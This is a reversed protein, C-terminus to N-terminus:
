PIVDGTEDDVSPQSDRSLWAAIMGLMSDSDIGQAAQRKLWAENIDDGHASVPVITSTAGDSGVTEFKPTGEKNKGGIPIFFETSLVKRKLKLTLLNIAKTLSQDFRKANTGNIRIIAPIKLGKALVLVDLSPRSKEQYDDFELIKKERGSGLIRYRKIGLPMVELYPATFADVLEGSKATLQEYDFFEIDLNEVSVHELGMWWGGRYMTGGLAKFNPQGNWWYVNAFHFKGQAVPEIAGNTKVTLANQNIM